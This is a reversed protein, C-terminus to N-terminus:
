PSPRGISPPEGPGAYLWPNDLLREGLVAM